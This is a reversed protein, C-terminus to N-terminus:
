KKKDKSYSYRYLPSNKKIRTSQSILNIKKQSTHITYIIYLDTVATYDNRKTFWWMLTHTHTNIKETDLTSVYSKRRLRSKKM